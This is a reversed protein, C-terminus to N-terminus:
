KCPESKDEDQNDYEHKLQQVKWCELVCNIPAPTM